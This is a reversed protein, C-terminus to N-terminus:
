QNIIIPLSSGDSFIFHYLGSPLTGLNLVGTTEGDLSIEKVLSGYSDFLLIFEGQTLQSTAEVFVEGSMSPNPYVTFSKALEQLGLPSIQIEKTLSSQCNANKAFATLQATGPNLWQIKIELSDSASAYVSGLTDLSWSYNLTSDINTILYGSKNGVMSTSDGIFQPQVPSQLATISVLDSQATCNTLTDTVIVFVLASNTISIQNGQAQNSWGYDLNLGSPVSVFSTDGSCITDATVTLAVDPNANVNISITDTYATCGLLSTLTAYVSQTTDLTITSSTEQNSWLVQYSSSVSLSVSDGHCFQTANSLTISTDIAADQNVWVTDTLKVGFPYYAEVTLAGSYGNPVTFSLSTDVSASTFWNVSELVSPLAFSIITGDCAMVSDPQVLELVPANNCSSLMFPGITDTNTELVAYRNGMFQYPLTSCAVSDHPAGWTNGNIFKYSITDGKVLPLTAAYMGNGLSTMSNASSNWSNFNGAIHVNNAVTQGNLNVVFTKDEVEVVVTDRSVCGDSSTGSAIYQTTQTPYVSISSTTDGTNWVVDTSPAQSGISLVVETQTNNFPMSQSIQATPLPYINIGLTDYCVSSQGTSKVWVNQNTQYTEDHVYTTDGSSWLYDFSSTFGLNKVTLQTSEGFCYDNSGIIEPNNALIFVSDTHSVGRNNIVNVTVVTDSILNFSCVSDLTGTSWSYTSLSTMGFTEANRLDSKESTSLTRSWFGIDDVAAFAGPVPLSGPLLSMPAGVVVGQPQPTNLAGLVLESDTQSGNIELSLTNQAKQIIVHNWNTDLASEVQKVVVQFSQNVFAGAFGVTCSDTLYCAFSGAGTSDARGFLIGTSCSDRRVWFSITFESSDSLGQYSSMLAVRPSLDYILASNTSNIYYSSNDLGDRNKQLVYGLGLQDPNKLTQYEQTSNSFPLWLVNGTPFNEPVDILASDKPISDLTLELREGYCLDSPAVISEQFSPTTLEPGLTLYGVTDVISPSTSQAFVLYTGYPTSSVPTLYNVYSGTSFYAPVTATLCPIVQSISQTGLPALAFQFFNGPAFPTALTLEIEISDGPTAYNSADTFNVDYSQSLGVTSMLVSVASLISRYIWTKM